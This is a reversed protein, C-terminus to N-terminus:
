LELWNVCTPIEGYGFYEEAASYALSKPVVHDSPIDFASGEDGATQLFHVTEPCCIPTMGMPEFGAHEGADDPFYYLFAVDANILVMLSSPNGDHWLHFAGYCGRRRSALCEQLTQVNAITIEEDFDEIQM